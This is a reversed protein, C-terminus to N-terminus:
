SGTQGAKVLIIQYPVDFEAPVACRTLPKEVLFRPLWAAGLGAKVQAALAEASASECILREPMRIRQRELMSAIRAGYATGPTYAMLPGSLQGKELRIQPKISSAAVLVLADKGIIEQQFGKLEEDEDFRSILALNARHQRLAELCGTNSAVVLSYNEFKNKALWSPLFSIAITNTTIIRLTQEFHSAVSLAARRADLIDERLRQARKLFEDGAPTLVTPTVDRNFLKAGLWEELRQIRRSFAPQTAHRVEAARTFNRAAHLALFDDIWTLEM